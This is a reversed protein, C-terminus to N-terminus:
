EMALAFYAEGGSASSGAACRPRRRGFRSRESRRCGRECPCNRTLRIPKPQASAISWGKTRGRRGDRRGSRLPLRAGRALSTLARSGRSPHFDLSRQGRRPSRRSASPRSTALVAGLQNPRSLANLAVPPGKRNQSGSGLGTRGIQTALWILSVNPRRARRSVGHNRKRRAPELPRPWDEHRSKLGHPSVTRGGPDASAM